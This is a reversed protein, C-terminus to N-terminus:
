VEQFKFIEQELITSSMKSQINTIKIIVCMLKLFTNEGIEMNDGKDTINKIRDKRM